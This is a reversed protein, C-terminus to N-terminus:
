PWGDEGQTGIYSKICFFVYFILECLPEVSHPPLRWKIEKRIHTWGLTFLFNCMAKISPCIYWVSLDTSSIFYVFCGIMHHPLSLLLVKIDPLNEQLEFIAESYKVTIALLNLKDSEQWETAIWTALLISWCLFFSNLCKNYVIVKPKLSFRFYLLGYCSYDYMRVYAGHSSEFWGACGRLRILTKM